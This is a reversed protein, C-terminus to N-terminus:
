GEFITNWDRFKTNNKKPKFEIKIGISELTEVKTWKPGLIKLVDIKTRISETKIQKLRSVKFIDTKTGITKFLSQNLGKIKNKDWKKIM